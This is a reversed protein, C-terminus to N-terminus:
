CLLPTNVGLLRQHGNHPHPNGLFSPRAAFAPLTASKEWRNLNSGGRSRQVQIQELHFRAAAVCHHDPNDSAWPGVSSESSLSLSAAGTPDVKDGNVALLLWCSLLALVLPLSRVMM